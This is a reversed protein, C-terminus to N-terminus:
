RKIYGDNSLKPPSIIENMLKVIKKSIYNGSDNGWCENGNEDVMIFGSCYVHADEPYKVSFGSYHFENEDKHFVWDCGIDIEGNSADFECYGTWYDMDTHSRYLYHYFKKIIFLKFDIENFKKVTLNRM